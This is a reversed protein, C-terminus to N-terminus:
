PNGEIRVRKHRSREGSLIEVDRKKVQYHKALFMVLAQNAKGDVAPATLYIKIVDGEEKLCNHKAGPIVKLDLTM